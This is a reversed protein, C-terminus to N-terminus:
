IIQKNNKVAFFLSINFDRYMIIDKSFLKQWRNYPIKYAAKSSLNIFKKNLYIYLNVNM